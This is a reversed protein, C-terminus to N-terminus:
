KPTVVRSKIGDIAQKGYIITSVVGVSAYLLNLAIVLMNTGKPTVEAIAAETQAVVQEDM